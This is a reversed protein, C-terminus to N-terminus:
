KLKFDGKGVLFGNNYIEINYEGKPLKDTLVWDLCAETDENNYDFKGSYTYRVESDDLKNILVGGGNSEIAVTEGIPNILRVFFEKEGAPTVYNSETRVCTRLMEIDKAKSKDDLDGDDEIEYGQVNLWNIKIANAMDVKSSLEDNDTVLREKESALVKRAEELEANMEMQAQYSEALQTKEMALKENSSALYQNQEKLETIEAVYTEAQQVMNEIEKKAKALERKTWILNNIKEKQATLEKKQSDILANLDKNDGKLEELKQLSTQYDQELEAQAKEIEIMEAEQRVNETKLQSNSYWQYANLGLLAIIAVLVWATINSKNAKNDTMKKNKNRDM